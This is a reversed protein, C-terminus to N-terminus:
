PRPKLYPHFPATLACRATLLPRPLTFGVRLLVLYAPIRGSSELRCSAYRGSAGLRLSGEPLWFRRTPQQLPETIHRRSSHDDLVSNPKRATQLDPPGPVAFVTGPGDNKTDNKEAHHLPTKIPTKAFFPTCSTTTQTTFTVHKHHFRPPPICTKSSHTKQLNKLNIKPPLFVTRTYRSHGSMRHSQM